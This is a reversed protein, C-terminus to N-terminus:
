IYAQKKLLATITRGVLALYNIDTVAWKKFRGIYCFSIVGKVMSNETMLYQVAGGINQEMLKAFANDDRGELENVNDIVFVNDGTFRDTYNNEILYSADKCPANGCSLVLGMDSGAFVCIDDLGFGARIQEILVSLDPVRGMVLNEALQGIFDLKESAEGRSSLFASRRGMDKVVAGHKGIDYIVYRNQGKEQAIGLAKEAQMFLEEYDSSDDPYGAIGMSCTLHLGDVRESFAFEINSRIARLIGRLEEEDRIDELVILYGEASIRGALGHEGIERKIIQAVRYIVEDGFQHGMSGIIESFSDIYLLVLKVTYAPKASVIEEGYSTIARKNLLGSLSDRNAELALNVDKGRHQSSVASIVGTVKRNDPADYRTIGRFLYMEKTRGETLLTSEFEHDFRYVGNRIDNCLNNFPELYRSLVYGRDVVEKQWIDLEEDVLVVERCLDFMYIRIHKTGFSYDFALDGGLALFSRYDAIRRQRLYGQGELSMIDSFRISFLPTDGGSELLSVSALVWRLMGSVGKMRIVTCASGDNAAERLCKEIRPFDTDDITRRISYTVDNGFYRFFAEDARQTHFSEDVVARGIHYLREGFIEDAM